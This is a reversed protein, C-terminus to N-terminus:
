REKEEKISIQINNFLKRLDRGRRNCSLRGTFTELAVAKYHSWGHFTFCYSQYRKIKEIYKMAEPEIHGALLIFTVDTNRHSSHPRVHSVGREWACEDLSKVEELGVSDRVAFYVYENSEAESLRASRVLFYHEEHSHFVAEADFPLEAHETEVTYYRQYSKLLKSLVDSPNM